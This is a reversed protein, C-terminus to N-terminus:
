NQIELLVPPVSLVEYRHLATATDKLLWCFSGMGLMAFGSLRLFAMMLMLRRSNGRCMAVSFMHIMGVNMDFMLQCSLSCTFERRRTEQHWTHGM